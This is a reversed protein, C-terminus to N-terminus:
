KKNPDAESGIIWGIKFEEVFQFVHSPHQVGFFGETSDAGANNAIADLGPHEDVYRTM